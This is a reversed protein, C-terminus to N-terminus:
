QFGSFLLKSRQGPAEQGRLLVLPAADSAFEM